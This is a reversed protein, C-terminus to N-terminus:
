GINFAPPYVVQGASNALVGEKLEMAMFAEDPVEFPCTIKWKSAKEFGFNPYYDPHGLVIISDFGLEGAKKIGAKIMKGGIGQKQFDPLVAMPALSLSEKNGHKTEIHIKSFLIHGVVAGDIEAVLSLEPVFGDSKRIKEVIQGEEEQGFAKQHVKYVQQYDTKHEARIKISNM